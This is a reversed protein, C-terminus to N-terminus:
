KFTKIYTIVQWIEDETLIGKQAPMSSNFPAMAGGESIRWFMYDDKAVKVLEALNGPHPDLAQGAPGDGLGKEGHCSACRQEYITKGAAVANADNTTYPSTKGAYEPPPTPRSEQAEGGGGSGGCAALVLASFMLLIVVFAIKKM